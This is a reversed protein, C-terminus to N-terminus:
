SQQVNRPDAARVDFVDKHTGFEMELGARALMQHVCSLSTFSSAQPTSTTTTLARMEPSSRMELDAGRMHWNRM